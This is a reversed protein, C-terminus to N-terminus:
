FWKRLKPVCVNFVNFALCPVFLCIRGEQGVFIFDWHHSCGLGGFFVSFLRPLKRQILLKLQFLHFTKAGDSPPAVQNATQVAPVSYLVTQESTLSYTLAAVLVTTACAVAGVLVKSPAEVQHNSYM